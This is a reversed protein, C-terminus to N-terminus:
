KLGLFVKEGGGVLNVEIRLLHGGLVVDVVLVLDGVVLGEVSM